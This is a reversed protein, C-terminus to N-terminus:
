ARGLEEAVAVVLRDVDQRTNYGQISVRLWSRGAFETIPIEVLHVDRLRRHLAAGDTTGPLPLACGLFDPWAGFSGHNLYAIDPRLLFHHRLM